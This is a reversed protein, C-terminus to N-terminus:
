AGRGTQVFAPAAALDGYTAAKTLDGAAYARYFEAVVADPEDGAQAPLAPALLAPALLALMAVLLFSLPRMM